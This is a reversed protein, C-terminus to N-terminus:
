ADTLGPPLVVPELEGRLFARARVLSFGLLNLGKWQRPDRARVDERGLGIGWISDTPSAEVLVEDGTDLLFQRLAPDQGFKAVNGATVLDFRVAAWRREDFGAVQRGLRKAEEPSEAALIASRTVEDGFLRAKGAMMFHEASAYVVGGVEFRCSWWQSLCANSLGGDARRRHGWFFRYEFADGQEVAAILADLSLPTTM